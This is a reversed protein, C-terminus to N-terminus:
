DIAYFAQRAHHHHPLDPNSEWHPKCCKANDAFLTQSTNRGRENALLPKGIVDRDPPSLVPNQHVVM